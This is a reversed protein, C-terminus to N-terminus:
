GTPTVEIELERVALAALEAVQDDTMRVGRLSLLGHVRGLDNDRLDAGRLECDRLECDRLGCQRLAATPLRCGTLVAQDLNCGTWGVPGTTKVANLSAYDLRCDEFLVNKLTSDNLQMGTMRCGIFECREITLGALHASSLDVREFRCGYVTVTRWTSNSLDVGVLHSSRIRGGGLELRAWDAGDVKAEFLEDDPAEDVDDLDRPDLDPILIRLAGINRTEM